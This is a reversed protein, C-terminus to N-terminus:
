DGTLPRPKGSIKTGADFFLDRTAPMGLRRNHSDTTMTFDNARSLQSSFHEASLAISVTKGYSLTMVDAIGSWVLEPTISPLGTNIDGVGLYINVAKGQYVQSRTAKLISPTLLNSPVGVIGMSLSHAQIERSSQFGSLIGHEGVGYWTHGLQSTTGVGTWSYSPTDLAVHVFWLKWVSSASIATKMAGSLGRPM